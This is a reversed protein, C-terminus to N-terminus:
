GIGQHRIFKKITNGASEIDVLDFKQIHIPNCVALDQLGPRNQLDGLRPVWEDARTGEDAM